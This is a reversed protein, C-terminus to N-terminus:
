AIEAASEVKQAQAGEITQKAMRPAKSPLKFKSAIRTPIGTGIVNLPSVALNLAMGGAEAPNTTSDIYGYKTQYRVPREIDKAGWQMALDKGTPAISPDKGFQGGFASIPDKGEGVAYVASRAPADAYRDITEGVAQIGKGAVRAAGYAMDKATDLFGPEEQITQEWASNDEEITDEWGM